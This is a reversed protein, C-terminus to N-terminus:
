TTRVRPITPDSVGSSQLRTSDEKVMTDKQHCVASAYYLPPKSGIYFLLHICVKYLEISSESSALSGSFSAHCSLTLTFLFMYYFATEWTTIAVKKEKGACVGEKILIIKIVFLRYQKNEITRKFRWQLEHVCICVCTVM